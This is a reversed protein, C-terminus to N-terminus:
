GPSGLYPSVRTSPSHNAPCFICCGTQIAWDFKQQQFFLALTAKQCKQSM